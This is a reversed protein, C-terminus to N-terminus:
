KTVKQKYKKTKTKTGGREVEEQKLDKSHKPQKQKEAVSWVVSPKAFSWELQELNPREAKGFKGFKIRNPNLQDATKPTFEPPWIVSAPLSKRDVIVIDGEMWGDPGSENWTDLLEQWQTPVLENWLKVTSTHTTPPEWILSQKWLFRLPGDVMRSLKTTETTAEKGKPGKPGKPSKQSEEGRIDRVKFSSSGEMVWKANDLVLWLQAVNNVWYLSVKDFQLHWPREEEFDFDEEEVEREEKNEKKEKEKEFGRKREGKEKEGHQRQLETSPPADWEPFDAIM